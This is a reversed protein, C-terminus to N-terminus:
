DFRYYKTWNYDIKIKELLVSAFMFVFYIASVRYKERVKGLTPVGRIYM